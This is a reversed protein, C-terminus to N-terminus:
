NFNVESPDGKSIVMHARVRTDLLKMQQDRKGKYRNIEKVTVGM